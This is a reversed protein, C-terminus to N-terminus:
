AFKTPRPLGLRRFVLAIRARAKRRARTDDQRAARAKLRRVQRPGGPVPWAPTSRTGTM